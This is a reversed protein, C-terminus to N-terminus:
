ARSKKSARQKPVDVKVTFGGHERAMEVLDCATLNKGHKPLSEKGKEGFYQGCANCFFEGPKPGNALLKFKTTAAAIHITRGIVGCQVDATDESGCHSCVPLAAEEFRRVNETFGPYRAEVRAIWEDDVKLM